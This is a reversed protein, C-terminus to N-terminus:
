LLNGGPTVMANVTTLLRGATKVGGGGRQQPCVPLETEHDAAPRFTCRCGGRYWPKYFVLFGVFWGVVLFFFGLPIYILGCYVHGPPLTNVRFEGWQACM